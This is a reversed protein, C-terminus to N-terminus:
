FIMLYRFCLCSERERCRLRWLLVCNCATWEGVTGLRGGVARLYPRQGLLRAGTKGKRLIGWCCPMKQAQGARGGRHDASQCQTKVRSWASSRRNQSPLEQCEPYRDSHWLNQRTIGQKSAIYYLDEYHIAKQTFQCHKGDQPARFVEHEAEKKCREHHGRMGCWYESLLATPVMKLFGGQCSLWDWQCGCGLFCVIASVHCMRTLVNPKPRNQSKGCMIFNLWMEYVRWRM